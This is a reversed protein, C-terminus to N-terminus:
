PTKTGEVTDRAAPVQRARMPNFAPYADPPPAAPDESSGPVAPSTMPHKNRGDRGRRASM